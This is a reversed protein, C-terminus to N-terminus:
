LRLQHDDSRRVKLFPLVGEKEIECKFKKSPCQANLLLLLNEVKDNGYKQLFSEFTHIRLFGFVFQCTQRYLKGGFPFFIDKTCLKYMIYMTIRKLVEYSSSTTASKHIKPLGYLKPIRPNSNDYFYSKIRELEENVKYIKTNLPSGNILKYTDKELM